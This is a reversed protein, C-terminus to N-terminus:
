RKKGDKKSITKLFRMTSDKMRFRSVKTKITPLRKLIGKMREVDQSLYVYTTEISEHGLWLAISSLDIGSSLMRMATTHRLIHPSITRKELSPCKKAAIKTYKKIMYQVIDPSMRTGHITPFVVDSSSSEIEKAWSQLSINLQKSLPIRREKRGKGFFDIYGHSGLRINQWKLEILEFLRCGTQILMLLIVYDRKGLWTKQDPTSLIKKVEENNLYSILKKNTRKQPIALIQGIMESLEPLRENLYNFFSKLASIRINRTRVCAKRQTELHDLFDSVLQANIDEVVLQFPKKKLRKSTFEFFLQFTTSYSEITNMSYKKQKILRINFFSELYNSLKTTKM